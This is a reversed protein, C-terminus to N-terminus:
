YEPTFRHFANTNHLSHLAPWKYKNTGVGILFGIALVYTLLSMVLLSTLRQDKIQELNKHPNSSEIAKVPVYTDSANSDYQPYKLPNQHSIDTM